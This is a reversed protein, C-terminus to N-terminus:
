VPMVTAVALQEDVVPHLHADAGPVRRLDHVIKGADLFLVPALEGDAAAPVVGAEEAAGGHVRILKKSKELEILDRRITIETENLLLSLEHVDAKQNTTIYDLIRNRREEILSRQAM